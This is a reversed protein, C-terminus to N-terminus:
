VKELDNSETVYTAAKREDEKHSIVKTTFVSSRNYNTPHWNENIEQNCIFCSHLHYFLVFKTQMYAFWSIIYGHFYLTEEIWSFDYGHFNIFGCHAQYFYTVRSMCKLTQIKKQINSMKKNILM